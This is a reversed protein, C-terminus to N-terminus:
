KNGPVSAQNELCGTDGKSARDLQTAAPELRDLLTKAKVVKM